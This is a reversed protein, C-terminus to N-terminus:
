NTLPPPQPPAAAKIKNKKLRPQLAPKKSAHGPWPNSHEAWPRRRHFPDTGKRYVHSRKGTSPNYWDSIFGDNHHFAFSHTYHDMKTPPPHPPSSASNHKNKKPQGRLPSSGFSRDSWPNVRESWPNVRKSWSRSYHSSPPPLPGPRPPLRRFRVGSPDYWDVNIMSNESIIEEKFQEHTLVHSPLLFVSSLLFSIYVMSNAM